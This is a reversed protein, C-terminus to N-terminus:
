GGAKVLCDNPAPQPLTEPASASFHWVDVWAFRAVCRYLFHSELAKFRETKELRNDEVIELFYFEKFGRWDLYNSVAGVNQADTYYLNSIDRLGESRVYFDFYEHSVIIPTKKNDFEWDKLLQVAGRIDHNRRSAYLNYGETTSNQWFQLGVVGLVAGLVAVKKILPKSIAEVVAALPYATLILLLPLGAIFNRHNYASVSFLSKILFLTPPMLAAVAIALLVPGHKKERAARFALSIPLALLALVAYAATVHKNPGLWFVLTGWVAALNPVLWQEGFNMTLSRWLGPLAPAYLVIAVVVLWCWARIARWSFPKISYALLLAYSVVSFVVGSYHLYAACVASVVFGFRNKFQADGNIVLALLYKINLMCFLALLMNARAEQSFFVAYYSMAVLAAALLGCSASLFEKATRFVVLVLLIGAMASPARLALESDGGLWESFRLVFHYGFPHSDYLYVQYLMGVVSIRLAVLTGWLEDVWLSQQDIGYFRYIAAMVLVAALATYIYAPQDQSAHKM